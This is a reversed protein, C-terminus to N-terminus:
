HHINYVNKVERSDNVASSEKKKGYKEDYKVFMSVNVLVGMSLSLVLLSSGGYSVFPLPVGTIPIVGSVGGLNIFAQLGIMSSIGVALMTGFPDRSKVGTYIGRLVIYSLGLIVFAVGLLGLEEVIIAMIFDTHSEPLYGLKQIGQGLGLGKLGGAGIALYSNVLQYGDGQAYQFPDLYAHIRGVRETTFIYKRGLYILPSVLILLGAGLAGLKFFMKFSIGSCLIVFCGIVFIIGATGYDPELFVLFCIFGFLLLPPMVGVNLQDIYDQKKAYVASLYIIVSLKAFESPQIRMIGTDIWSQAGNVEVGIFHVALLLGITGFIVAKLPFKFKTFAKYPFAAAFLFAAFGILINFLQKKYFHDSSYGYIEVATVMSASYIMILGFFCLFLYVAVLSYDYSKLIKKILM